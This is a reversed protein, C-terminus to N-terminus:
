LNMSFMANAREKFSSDRLKEEVLKALEDLSLHAYEERDVDMFELFTEPMLRHQFRLLQSLFKIPEGECDMNYLMNIEKVEEPEYEEGVREIASLIDDLLEVNQKNLEPKARYIQPTYSQFYATKIYAKMLEMFDECDMNQKYMNQFTFEICYRLIESTNLEKEERKYVKRGIENIMKAIDESTRLSILKSSNEM